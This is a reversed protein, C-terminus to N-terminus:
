SIHYVRGEVNTPGKRVKGGGRGKCKLTLPGEICVFLPDPPCFFEDFSTLGGVTEQLLGRVHTTLGGGIAMGRLRVEAILKKERSFILPTM